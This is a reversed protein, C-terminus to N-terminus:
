HHFSSAEAASQLPESQRDLEPLLRSLDEIFLSGLDHSFGNRVVVRLVSLDQRDAPFSYAPV